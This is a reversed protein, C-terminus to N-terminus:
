PTLHEKLVLHELHGKIANLLAMAHTGNFPRHDFVLKIRMVRRCQLEPERGERTVYRPRERLSGAAIMAVQGPLVFPTGIEGMLPGINTLTLTAGQLDAVNVNGARVSETLAQVRLVVDKLRMREAGKIVPSYLDENRGVVALGVNVYPSILLREAAADLRGRFGENRDEKLAQIIAWLVLHTYSVHVGWERTFIQRMKDREDALETIDVETQVSVTPIEHLSKVGLAGVQLQAPSLRIEKVAPVAALEGTREVERLSAGEPVEIYLLTSGIRVREGERVDIEAVRGPHPADIEFSGKNAEMEVLLTGTQVEQGVQVHFRVVTADEDTPSQKPVVVALRRPAPPSPPLSAALARAPATPVPSPAAVAKMPEV